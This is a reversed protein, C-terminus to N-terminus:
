CSQGGDVTLTVGNVFDSAPSALFAVVGACEEVTGLRQLPIDAVVKDLGMRTFGEMLRGIGIRGPAICNATIGHPGLDLALNRTYMVIAAKAMGYHSYVGGPMARLGAVSSVTIIKGSGRAKMHPAVAVCSNVTGILNRDLVQSLETEDLDSAVGGTPGGQGGGANCVLIDITGFRDVTREALNVMATRSTVDAAIGIAEGGVALIEDVTSRGGALEFERSFERYSELAIDSVVVRAGMAALRLAYARGLGRAAGTVIATKGDLANGM